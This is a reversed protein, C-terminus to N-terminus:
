VMRPVFGTPQVVRHGQIQWLADAYKGITCAITSRAAYYITKTSHSTKRNAQRQKSFPFLIM